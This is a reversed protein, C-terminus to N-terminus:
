DTKILKSEALVSYELWHINSQLTLVINYQYLSLGSKVLSTTLELMKKVSSPQEVLSLPLVLQQEVQEMAEFYDKAVTQDLARAYITTTNLKKHVIFKQISTVRCGPNLVQRDNAMVYVQTTEIGHIEM